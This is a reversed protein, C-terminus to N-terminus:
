QPDSEKKFQRLLKFQQDIKRQFWRDTFNRHILPMLKLAELVGIMKRVASSHSLKQRRRAWKKTWYYILYFPLDWGPREEEFYGRNFHGILLPQWAAYHRRVTAFSLIELEVLFAAVDMYPSNVALDNGFDIVTLKQDAVFIHRAKYDGHIRSQKHPKGDFEKALEAVEQYLWEIKKEPLRQKHLKKLDYDIMRLFRASDFPVEPHQEFKNHLLNLWQGCRFLQNEAKEGEAGEGIAALGNIFSGLNIGAAKEMLIANYRVVYDLPRVVSYQPDLEEFRLYSARHFEYEKKGFEVADPALVTQELEGYKPNRHAKAYITEIKEGSRYIHFIQIVSFKYYNLGHAPTVEIEADTPQDPYYSAFHQRIHAAVGDRFIESWEKAM